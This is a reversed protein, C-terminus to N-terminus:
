AFRGSIATMLEADPMYRKPNHAIKHMATVKENGFHMVIMLAEDKDPFSEIEDVRNAAEKSEFVKHWVEAVFCTVALPCDAIMMRVLKAVGNKTAANEMMANDVLVLRIMEMRKQDPLGLAGLKKDYALTIVRPTFQHVPTDIFDIIFKDAAAFAPNLDKPDIIGDMM